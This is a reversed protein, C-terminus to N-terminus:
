NRASIGAGEGTSHLYQSNIDAFSKNQLVELGGANDNRNRTTDLAISQVQEALQGITQYNTINSRQISPMIWRRWDTRRRIKDGQVEVVSSTRVAHLVIQINDTLHKVKKFGAILNIPVWGQDDMNKRLYIDKILNESSFYYDIQNVIKTHLSPDLPQFFMANPPISTIFPISSLSELPPPPAFVLPPPIDSFGIASGFPRMPPSPPFYQAPTPNSPPPPRVFRPAIRPIYNRHTNWDHNGRDQDRRGGYSHLHGVDGRHHPSGSNRHRFLNRQPAHDNSVFGTRPQHDRPLSNHGQSGSAAMSGQPTSLQPPAHGGNSFTNVNYNRKLSKQHTHTSVVNNSSANDRIQKQSSPLPSGSCQLPPPSSVDISGKVSESPSPSLSKSLVRASESLAPWSDAGMVSSSAGNSPKNWAPRRAMNVNHGVGTDSNEVSVSNVVSSDVVQPVVLSPPVAVIQNWPSSVGSKPSHHPSAGSMAM